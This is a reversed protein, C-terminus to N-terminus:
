QYFRMGIEFCTIYTNNGFIVSKKTYSTFSQSVSGILSMQKNIPLEIETGVSLLYRRIIPDFDDGSLTANTTVPEPKNNISITRFRQNYSLDFQVFPNLKIGWKSYLTVGYKLGINEHRIGFMYGTSDVTYGGSGQFQIHGIIIDGLIAKSYEDQFINVNFNAGAGKQNYNLRLSHKYKLWEFRYGIGINFYKFTYDQGSYTPIRDYLGTQLNPFPYTDDKQYGFDKSFSYGGEVFLQSFCYSSIFMTLFITNILNLKHQKKNKM